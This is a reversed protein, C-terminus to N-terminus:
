VQMKFTWRLCRLFTWAGWFNKGYLKVQLMENQIEPSPYKTKQTLSNSIRPDDGARLLLLQHLNSSEEVGHERNCNGRLPLAQQAIICLM